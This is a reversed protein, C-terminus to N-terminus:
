VISQVSALSLLLLFFLWFFIQHPPLALILSLLNTLLSFFWSAITSQTLPQHDHCCLRCLWAHYCSLFYLYTWPSPPFSAASLGLSLQNEPSSSTSSLHSHTSSLIPLSFLLHCSQWWLFSSLFLQPQFPFCFWPFNIKLVPSFYKFNKTTLIPSCLKQLYFSNFTCHRPLPPSAPCSM